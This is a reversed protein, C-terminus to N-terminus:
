DLNPHRNHWDTAEEYALAISLLRAEAWKPAIL